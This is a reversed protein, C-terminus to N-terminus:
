PFVVGRYSGISALPINSGYAENIVKIFENAAIAYGRPNLHVGDLSFAGGGIYEPSIGIGEMMIGPKIKDLFGYMDVVPYNFMAASSKIANNLEITRSRCANVEGQDLVRGNSLPSTESSGAGAELDDKATLLILDADSAIRVQTVGGNGDGEEIWVDAYGYDEKIGGVTFTNFYPIVTVDPITACVGEAGISSFATLVSDYKQRFVIPDSLNGYQIVGLGLLTGDIEVPIGGSTAYGLVDNDGLWSTFFTANSQKIHDVYQIPTGGGLLFNPNGGFDMFRAYPNGPITTDIIFPISVSFGGLIANNIELEDDNVAVCQMLTIGSIGLNNYKISKMSAGWNAWSGDEETPDSTVDGPSIVEIEGNIYELHMYGSGNGYVEPQEFDDMNPDVLQMQRAIISPYSNEQGEKYVGGDQYGQTLSNGVSIYRSFDADGYTREVEEFQVKRCSGTIVAIGILILGAKKM